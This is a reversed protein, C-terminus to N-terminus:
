RDSESPRPILAVVIQRRQGDRLVTLEITDGVNEFAVAVLLDAFDAIPEGDAEIVVDGGV